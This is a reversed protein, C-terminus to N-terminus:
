KILPESYHSIRGEDIFALDKDILPEGSMYKVIEPMFKSNCRKIDIGEKNLFRKVFVNLDDNISELKFEEIHLDFEKIVENQELIEKYNEFYKKEFVIEDPSSGLVHIDKLGAKVLEDKIKGMINLQITKHKKPSLKGFIVQRIQKSEKFYELDTFKSIFEEYTDAALIDKDYYNLSQVNGKVLDISVFTKGVHEQQYLKTKNVISTKRYEELKDKELRKYSKRDKVFDMAANKIRYIENLYDELSEFRNITSVLLDYKTKSLYLEEFLELYYEFYGDQVIQIPLKYDRVFQRKTDENINITM